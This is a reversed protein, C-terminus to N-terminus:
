GSNLSFTCFSISQVSSDSTYVIWLCRMAFVLSHAYLYYYHLEEPTDQLEVSSFSPHIWAADRRCRWRGEKEGGGDEEGEGGECGGKREGGGREERVVVGGEEM